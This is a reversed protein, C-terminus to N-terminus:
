EGWKLGEPRGQPTLATKDVASFNMPVYRESAEDKPQIDGVTSVYVLPPVATQTPTATKRDRPKWPNNLTSMMISTYDQFALMRSLSDKSKAGEGSKMGTLELTVSMSCKIPPREKPEGLEEYIPM